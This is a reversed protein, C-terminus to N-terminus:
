AGGMPRFDAVPLTVTMDDPGEPECRGIPVGCGLGPSAVDPLAEGAVDLRRREGDADEVVLAVPLGSSGALAWARARWAASVAVGAVSGWSRPLRAVCIWGVARDGRSAVADACFRDSLLDLRAQWNRALSELVVSIEKSKGMLGSSV